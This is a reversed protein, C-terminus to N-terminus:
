RKARKRAPSLPAAAAPGAAVRRLEAEAADLRARLSLVEGCLAQMHAGVGSTMHAEMANRALSMGCGPVACPVVEFACVARHAEMGDRKVEVPCGANTCPSPAASCNAPHKKIAANGVHVESCHPCFEARRGCKAAHTAATGRPMRKKCLPWECAVEVAVCTAQHAILDRTPGKWTCRAAPPVPGAATLAAATPCRLVLASIVDAAFRNTVVQAM